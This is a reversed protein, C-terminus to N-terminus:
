KNGDDTTNDDIKIYLCSLENQFDFFIHETDHLKVNYSIASSPIITGTVFQDLDIDIIEQNDYISYYYQNIINDSKDKASLVIFSNIFIFIAFFIFKKLKEM